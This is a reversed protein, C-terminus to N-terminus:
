RRRPCKRVAPGLARKPAEAAWSRRLAWGATDEFPEAHDSLGDPV